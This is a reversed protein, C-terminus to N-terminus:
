WRIFYCPEKLQPVCSRGSLAAGTWSCCRRNLVCVIGIFHWNDSHNVKFGMMQFVVKKRCRTLFEVKRRICNGFCHFSMRSNRHLCNYMQLQLKCVTKSLFVIDTSEHAEAGGKWYLKRVEDSTLSCSLVFLYLGSLM